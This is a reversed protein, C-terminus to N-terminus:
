SQSADYVDDAVLAREEAQTMPRIDHFPGSQKKVHGWLESTSNSTTIVQIKEGCQCTDTKTM